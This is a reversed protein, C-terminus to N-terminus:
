LYRLVHIPAALPKKAYVVWDNQYSQDLLEEFDGPRQLHEPLRLADTRKLERLGSLFSVRYLQSLAKVPVWRDEVLGVGGGTVLMHIHVHFSLNSGWTHLLSIM